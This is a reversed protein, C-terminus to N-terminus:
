SLSLQIWYNQYCKFGKLSGPTIITPDVGSIDKLNGTVQVNNAGAANNIYYINNGTTREDPLTITFVGATTDATVETQWPKLTGNASLTIRQIDFMNLYLYQSNNLPTLNCMNIAVLNSSPLTFVAKTEIDCNSFNISSLDPANTLDLVGSNTLVFSCDCFSLKKVTQGSYKLSMDNYFYTNKIAVNDIWDLLLLADTFGHSFESILWSNIVLSKAANVSSLGGNTGALIGYPATESTNNNETYFSNIVIHANSAIELIGKENSEVYLNNILVNTGDDFIVAYDGYCHRVTLKNILCTNLRYGYFGINCYSANLYGVNDYNDYLAFGRNGAGHVSLNNINCLGKIYIGDDSGGMVSFDYLELNYILGDPNFKIVPVSLSSGDLITSYSNNITFEDYSDRAMALGQGQIRVKYSNIGSPMPNVYHIPTIVPFKGPPLHIPVGWPSCASIAKMICDGIDTHVNGFWNAMAYECCRILQFSGAGGFIQKLGAVIEGEISLTIGSAPSLMGDDKFNLHINSPITLDTTTIPINNYITISLPNTGSNAILSRLTTEDGASQEVAGLNGGQVTDAVVQGAYVAGWNKEPTGLDAGKDTRPVINRAM